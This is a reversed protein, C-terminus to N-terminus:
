KKYILCLIFMYSMKYYVILCTIISVDKKDAKAYIFNELEILDSKDAKLSVQQILKEFDNIELKSNIINVMSQFEDM